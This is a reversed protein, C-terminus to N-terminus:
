RTEKTITVKTSEMKYCRDESIGYLGSVSYADKFFNDTQIWEGNIREIFWRYLTITKNM